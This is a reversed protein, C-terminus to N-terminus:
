TRHLIRSAQPQHVPIVWLSPIPLPTRHPPTHNWSPSCTYVRPPHMNIYPLVLVINYLLFYYYYYFNKKFIVYCTNVLIHLFQFWQISKTLIYFLVNTISFLLSSGLIILVLVIIHNLLGVEPYKDLLISILNGFFHKYEQTWQLEIWLLWSTFVVWIDMLLHNSLSFTTYVHLPINYLNFLLLSNKWVHCCPHVKFLSHWALYALWLLVFVAHNWKYSTALWIYASNCPLQWPCPLSSFIANNLLYLTETKCSSYNWLDLRHYLLLCHCGVGTSKGPFLVSSGPLSYDMPDSLTPCSQTVESESKVKM